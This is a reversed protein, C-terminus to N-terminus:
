QKKFSFFRSRHSSHTAKVILFLYDRRRRLDVYIKVFIFEAIKENSTSFFKIHKNFEYNFDDIM